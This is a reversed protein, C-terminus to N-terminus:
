EYLHNNFQELTTLKGLYFDNNYCQCLGNALTQSACLHYGNKIFSWYQESSLKYPNSYTYIVIAM